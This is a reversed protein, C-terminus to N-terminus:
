AVVAHRGATSDSFRAAESMAAHYAKCVDVFTWESSLLDLARTRAAVGMAERRQRNKVLTRVGRVFTGADEALIGSRGDDAVFSRSGSSMVVAPVGSAMAELVVNSETDAESPYTFVDM